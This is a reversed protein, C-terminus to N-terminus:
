KENRQKQKEKRGKRGEKVSKVWEAKVGGGGEGGMWEELAARASRTWCLPPISTTRLCWDGGGRGMEEFFVATDVGRRGGGM